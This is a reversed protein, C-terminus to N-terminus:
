KAFNLNLDGDEYLRLYYTYCLQNGVINATQCLFLLVCIVIIECFIRWTKLVLMRILLGITLALTPVTLAYSVININRLIM